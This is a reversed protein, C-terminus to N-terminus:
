AGTVYDVDKSESVERISRLWEKREVATGERGTQVRFLAEIQDILDVEVVSLAADGREDSSKNEEVGHSDLEGADKKTVIEWDDDGCLSTADSSTTLPDLVSCVDVADAPTSGFVSAPVSLPVAVPALALPTTPTAPRPVPPM